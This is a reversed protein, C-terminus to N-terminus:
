LKRILVLPRDLWVQAVIGGYPVVKCFTEDDKIEFPNNPMVDLRPSDIHSVIMNAGQSLDEGMEVLAVLKNRFNFMIKDGKHYEKNEDYLGYGNELARKNIYDFVFIEHKNNDLFDKYHNMDM